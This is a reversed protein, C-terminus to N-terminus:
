RLFRSKKVPVLNCEWGNELLAHRTKELPRKQECGRKGDKATFKSSLRIAFLFHIRNPGNVEFYNQSNLYRFQPIQILRERISM